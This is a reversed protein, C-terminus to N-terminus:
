HAGGKERLPGLNRRLCALCAALVRSNSYDAEIAHVQELVKLVLELVGLFELVELILELVELVLELVELPLELVALVLELVLELLHLFFLFRFLSIPM